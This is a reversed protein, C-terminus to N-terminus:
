RMRLRSFIYKQIYFFCICHDFTVVITSSCSSFTKHLKTSCFFFVSDAFSTLSHCVFRTKGGESMSAHMFFLCNNSYYAYLLSIRLDISQNKTDSLTFKQVAFSLVHLRKWASEGRNVFVNACHHENVQLFYFSLVVCSSRTHVRNMTWTFLKIQQLLTSM